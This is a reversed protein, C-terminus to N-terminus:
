KVSKSCKIKSLATAVLDGNDEKVVLVDSRVHFIKRGAKLVEAPLWPNELPSLCCTYLTGGSWSAWLDLTGDM